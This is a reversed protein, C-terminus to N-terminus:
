KVMFHLVLYALIALLLVVGIAMWSWQNNKIPEKRRRQKGTLQKRLNHNLRSVTQKTEGPPMEKLGEMADSEMGEEALWLEVEHQEEPSLRGELYAQLKEESLKGQKEEDFSSINDLDSM